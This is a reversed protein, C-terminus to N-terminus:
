RTKRAVLYVWCDDADFGTSNKTNGMVFEVEFGLAKLRERERDIDVYTNIWRFGLGPDNVYALGNADDRSQRSFNRLRNFIFRARKLPVFVERVLLRNEWSPVRHHHLNHTSYLFFGGPKLVRHIESLIQERGEFDVSDIGNFSFCVCDFPEDFELKRADMERLDADPYLQKSSEVLPGSYDVGVYRAFVRSLPETTRGAGIGIDLISGHWENPVCELSQMEQPTLGRPSKRAYLTVAPASQYANRNTSDSVTPM